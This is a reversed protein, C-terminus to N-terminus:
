ISLAMRYARSAEDRQGLKACTNGLYLHAMENQPEIHLFQKCLQKAEDYKELTYCVRSHMLLFDAYSKPRAELERQVRLWNRTWPDSSQPVGERGQLEKLAANYPESVTAIAREALDEKGQARYCIALNWRTVHDDPNRLL